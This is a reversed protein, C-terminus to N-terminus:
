LNMWIIAANLAAAYGLWLVYPTFAYVIWQHVKRGYFIVFLSCILLLVIGIFGALPSQLGFFLYSWISNFGLQLVWFFRGLGREKSPEENWLLFGALSVLLYLLPWVLSFIPGPPNWVPKKLAIFWSGVHVKMIYANIEQVLLVLFFFLIASFFYRLLSNKKQIIGFM